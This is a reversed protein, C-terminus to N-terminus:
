LKYIGSESTQNIEIGGNNILEEVVNLRGFCTAVEIPTKGHLIKENHPKCENEKNEKSQEIMEAVGDKNGNACLRVFIEDVM